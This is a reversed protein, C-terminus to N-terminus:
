APYERDVADAVASDGTSGVIWELPVERTRDGVDLVARDAILEGQGPVGRHWPPVKEVVGEAIYGYVASHPGEVYYAVRDGETLADADIGPEPGDIPEVGDEVPDEGCDLSDGRRCEIREVVEFSEITVGSQSESWAALADAIGDKTADRRSTVDLDVTASELGAAGRYEVVLVLEHDAEARAIQEFSLTQDGVTLTGM